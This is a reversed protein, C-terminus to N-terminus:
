KTRRILQISEDMYVVRVVDIDRFFDNKKFFKKRGRELLEIARNLRAISKNQPNM